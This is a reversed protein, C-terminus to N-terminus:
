RLAHKRMLRQLYVRAIGAQKAARSVNGDCRELLHAVYDKEFAVVLRDKARKFPLAHVDGAEVPRAPPARSDLPVDVERGLSSAREIVNKLERVNGPWDYDRLLALTAPELKADAAGTEELLGEILQPLDELRDRLPPVTVCLGALRHYLDSRFAGAEVRAKLDHHTVAIVRVDVARHAEWGLPKVERHELVRLLWPQLEVSLEGIEDLLLTGGHAREFAGKRSAEAGTFAGKEHGFLESGILEPTTAALDCAVFPGDRRASAAHIARACLEKGTGTEGLLLVDGDSASLRELTAFLTRMALSKGRLAGFRDASSPALSPKAERRPALKLQTRGIRVHAPPKLDVTQFRV